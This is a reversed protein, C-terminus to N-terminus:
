FWFSFQFFILVDIEMDTWGTEEKWKKELFLKIDCHVKVSTKKVIFCMSKFLATDTTHMIICLNAYNDMIQAKECNKCIKELGKEAM